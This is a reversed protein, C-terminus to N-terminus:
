LPDCHLVNCGKFQFATQQHIRFILLYLHAGSTQICLLLFEQSYCLMQVHIDTTTLIQGGSPDHCTEQPLIMFWGKPVWDLTEM